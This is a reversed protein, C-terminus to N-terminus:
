LIDIRDVMVGDVGRTAMRELQDATRIPWAVVGVDMTQATEVVSPELCRDYPIEIFDCGIQAARHVEAKSGRTPVRSPDDRETPEDPFSVYGFPVEWDTARVEALLPLESSCLYVDHDYSETVTRLDGLLNPAKLDLHVPISPPVIELGASLLPISEGSDLVDLRKLTEYGTTAIQHNGDTLEDTTPERFLVLEGSGCRVVDLEIRDVHDIVNSIALLTNEPFQGACAGHAIYDM